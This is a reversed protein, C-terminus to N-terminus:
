LGPLLIRHWTWNDTETMRDESERCLSYFYFSQRRPLHIGEDVIELPGQPIQSRGGQGCWLESDLELNQSNSSVDQHM